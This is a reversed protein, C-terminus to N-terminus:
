QASSEIPSTGSQDATERDANVPGNPDIQNIAPWGAQHLAASLDIMRVAGPLPGITTMAFGNTSEADMSGHTARPAVMFAMLPSGFCWDSQLSILVDPVHEVLGDMARHLRYLPDPYVHDATSAFWDTDAAFGEADFKGATGMQDIVAALKLPDGSEAAYRFRDNRREIMAREDGADVCIAGDSRKFAAFEVYDKGALDHAVQQPQKSCVTAMSVLGYRPIVVDDSGHLRNTVRYGLRRLDAEIPARKARVFHHGHDSMLTIDIDGHFRHFLARCFRALHALGWEHGDRGQLFGLASTSVMYTRTSGRRRTEILREIDYLEREFGARPNLYADGHEKFPRYYDVWRLWKSNSEALYPRWGDISHEGDFYDTEVAAAPSEGFFENLSLDTMAPFPSIVKAPPYFHPFLGRKHADVVMTFPISDLIILLRPRGLDSTAAAADSTIMANTASSPSLHVVMDNEGDFRLRAVRGKENIQEFYDSKGDGDTDYALEVGGADLQTTAVPVPLYTPRQLTCGAVFVAITLIAVSNAVSIIADPRAFVRSRTTLAAIKVYDQM